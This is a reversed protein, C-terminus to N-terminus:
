SPRDPLAKPECLPTSRQAPSQSPTATNRDPKPRLSACARANERTCFLIEGIQDAIASQHAHVNSALNRQINSRLTTATSPNPEVAYIPRDPYRRAMILSFLGLNAGVDIIDGPQLEYTNLFSVEHRSFSAASHYESFGTFNGLIVDGVRRTPPETRINKKLAWGLYELGIRPQQLATILNKALNLMPYTCYNFNYERM